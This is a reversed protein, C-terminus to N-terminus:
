EDDSVNYIKYKSTVGCWYDHAVKNHDLCLTINVVKKRNPWFM